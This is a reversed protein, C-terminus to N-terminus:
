PVEETDPRARAALSILGLKSEVVEEVTRLLGQTEVSSLHRAARLVASVLPVARALGASETETLIRDHAQAWRLDAMVEQDLKMAESLRKIVGERPVGRRGNEMGCLQSQNVRLAYALEKQSMGARIRARKIEAPLFLKTQVKM